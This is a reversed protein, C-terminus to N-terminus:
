SDQYDNSTEHNKGKKNARIKYKSKLYLIEDNDLFYAKGGLKSQIEPDSIAKQFALKKIKDEIVTKMVIIPHFVKSAGKIRRLKLKLTFMLDSGVYFPVPNGSILQDIREKEYLNLIKKVTEPRIMIGEEEVQRSIKEATKMSLLVSKEKAM